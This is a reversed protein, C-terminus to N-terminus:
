DGEKQRTRKNEIFRRVQAWTVELYGQSQISRRTAAPLEDLTFRFRRRAQKNLFFDDWDEDLYKKCLEVSLDPVKLVFLARGNDPASFCNVGWKFGNEHVEVVDGAQYGNIPDHSNKAYILLEAM